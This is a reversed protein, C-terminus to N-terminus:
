SASGALLEALLACNAAFDKLDDGTPYGQARVSGLHDDIRVCLREIISARSFITLLSSKLDTFSANEAVLREAVSALWRVASVFTPSADVAPWCFPCAIGETPNERNV